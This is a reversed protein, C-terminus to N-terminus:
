EFEIKESMRIATIPLMFRHMYELDFSVLRFYEKFFAKNYVGLVLQILIKYMFLLAVIISPSHMIFCTSTIDGAPHGSYATM